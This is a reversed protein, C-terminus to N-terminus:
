RYERGAVRSPHTAPRYVGYFLFLDGPALIGELETQYGESQGYIGRWHQPRERLADRRIDPDLHAYDEPDVTRRRRRTLYRLVEGM